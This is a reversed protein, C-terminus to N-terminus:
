RISARWAGPGPRRPYRHGAAPDNWRGRRPQAEAGDSGAGEGMAGDGPGGSAATVVATVAALEEPTPAGRVIRLAPEDSANM